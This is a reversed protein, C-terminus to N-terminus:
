ATELPSPEDTETSQRRQDTAEDTPTIRIGDGEISITVSADEEFPFASDTAVVSPISVYLTNAEGSRFIRGAKQLTM